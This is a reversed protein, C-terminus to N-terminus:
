FTQIAEDARNLGLLAHAKYSWSLCDQDNLEIAEEVDDLAREFSGLVILAQARNRLAEFDDTNEKIYQSYYLVKKELDLEWFALEKWDQHGSRELVEKPIIKDFQYQYPTNM